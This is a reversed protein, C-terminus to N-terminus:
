NLCLGWMCSGKPSHAARPQQPPCGARSFQMESGPVITSQTLVCHWSLKGPREKERRRDRQFGGAARSQLPQQCRVFPARPGQGQELQLYPVMKGWYLLGSHNSCFHVAPILPPELGAAPLCHGRQLNPPPLLAPEPPASHQTGM